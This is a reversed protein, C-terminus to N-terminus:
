YFHIFYFIVYFQNFVYMTDLLKLTHMIYYYATCITCKAIHVNMLYLIVNIVEIDYLYSSFSQIVYSLIILQLFLLFYIGSNVHGYITMIVMM